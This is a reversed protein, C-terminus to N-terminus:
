LGLERKGALIVEHPECGLVTARRSGREDEVFLDMRIQDEAWTALAGLASRCGAGTEMLLGREVELLPRLRADDITKALEAAEGVKRTEVALAGQGPAPVMAEVSFRQTIQDALGLRELGAEALIAADVDGNAVKRVRTDVNGRLGVTKLDPRLSLLQASRRPSGTGVSAGPPLQDVDEGVIVDLPSVREPYATLALEKPGDTPLDKLSHVAMDARNEIVAHQVARVFAGLETLLTIDGNKDRDGQTVVEVFRVSVGPNRETLLEAVRRAQSLALASRRTAIRVETM